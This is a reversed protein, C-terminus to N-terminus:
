SQVTAESPRRAEVSSADTGSVSLASELKLRLDTAPGDSVFTAMAAAALSAFM